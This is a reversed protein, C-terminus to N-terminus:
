GGTDLGASPWWRVNLVPMDRVFVALDTPDDSPDEREALGALCGLEFALALEPFPSDDGRLTGIEGTLRLGEM